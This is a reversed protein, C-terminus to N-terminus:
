SQLSSFMLLVVNPVCDHMCQMDPSQLMIDRKVELVMCWQILGAHMSMTVISTDREHVKSGGAQMPYILIPGHTRLLWAHLGSRGEQMHLAPRRAQGVM